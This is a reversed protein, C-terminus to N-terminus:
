GAAHSLDADPVAVRLGSGAATRQLEVRRHTQIHAPDLLELAAAFYHTVAGPDLYDLILHSRGEPFSLKVDHVTLTDGPFTLDQIGSILSSMM